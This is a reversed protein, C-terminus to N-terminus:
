RTPKENRESLFPGHGGQNEERRVCSCFCRLVSAPCMEFSVFRLLRRVPRSMWWNRLTVDTDSGHPMHGVRSAAAASACRHLEAFRHSPNQQAASAAVSIQRPSEGGSSHGLINTESSECGVADGGRLDRCVTVRFTLAGYIVHERFRVSRVPISHKARTRPSVEGAAHEGTHAQLDVALRVLIAERSIWTQEIRQTYRQATQQCPHDQPVAASPKGPWTRLTVMCQLTALHRCVRAAQADQEDAQRFWPDRGREACPAPEKPRRPTGGESRCGCETVM